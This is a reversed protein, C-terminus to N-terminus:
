QAAKRRGRAAKEAPAAPAQAAGSIIRIQEDVQEVRDHLGRMVYGKREVELASLMRQQGATLAARRAAAADAITEPM